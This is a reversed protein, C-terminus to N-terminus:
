QLIRLMYEKAYRRSDATIRGHTDTANHQRQQSMHVRTDYTIPVSMKTVYVGNTRAFAAHRCYVTHVYIYKLEVAKYKRLAAHTSSYARHVRTRRYVKQTTQAAVVSRQRWVQIRYPCAGVLARLTRQCVVSMVHANEHRPSLM